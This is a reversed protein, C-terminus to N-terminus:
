LYPILRGFVIVSTWLLMSLGAIWKVMPRPVAASDDATLVEDAALKFWLANLGALVVAAM